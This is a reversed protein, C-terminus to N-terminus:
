RVLDTCAELTFGFAMSFHAVENVLEPSVPTWRLRNAYEAKANQRQTELDFILSDIDSLTPLIPLKKDYEARVAKCLRDFLPWPWGNTQKIIRGRMHDSVEIGTVVHDLTNDRSWPDPYV